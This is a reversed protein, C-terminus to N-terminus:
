RTIGFAKVNANKQNVRSVANCLIVTHSEQPQCQDVVKRKKTPKTKYRRLTSRTTNKGINQAVSTYSYARRRERKGVIDAPNLTSGGLGGVVVERFFAERLSSMSHLCVSLLILPEFSRFSRGRPVGSSDGADKGPEADPDTLLRFFTSNEGHVFM